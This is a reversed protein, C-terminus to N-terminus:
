PKGTGLDATALSGNTAVTIRWYHGDTDKLVVGKTASDVIVDDTTDVGSTTRNVANVGAYGLAVDKETEQQYGTHPDADVVHDTISILVAQETPVDTLVVGTDSKLHKVLGAFTMPVTSM